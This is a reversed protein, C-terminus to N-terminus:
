RKVVPLTIQASSTESSLWDKGYTVIMERLEKKWVRLTVLSGPKVEGNPLKWVFLLDDSIKPGLSSVISADAIRFAGVYEKHPERLDFEEDRAGMSLGGRIPGDNRVTSAVALYDYGPKAAAVVHKGARIEDFLLARKVTLTFEGDSYPQGVNFVVPKADVDDLGGFLAAVAIIAGAVLHWLQPLKLQALEGRIFGKLGGSM